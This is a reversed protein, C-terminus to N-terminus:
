INFIEAPTRRQRAYNPSFLQTQGLSLVVPPAGHNDCEFDVESEPDHDAARRYLSSLEDLERKLLVPIKCGFIRGLQARDALRDNRRREGCALV